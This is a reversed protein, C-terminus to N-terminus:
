TITYALLQFTATGTTGDVGMGNSFFSNSGFSLGIYSISAIASDFAASNASSTQGCINSWLGTVTSLSASLTVTGPSSGPTFTYFAADAWWYNNVNKNIGCVAASHDNPLNAQIFLRVFSVAPNGGDPNGLYATTPSSAVVNITATITNSETLSTKFTNLLYNVYTPSSGSADPMSFQVGGTPITDAHDAPYFHLNGNPLTNQEYVAWQSGVMQISNDAYAFVSFSSLVLILFIASSLVLTVKKSIANM